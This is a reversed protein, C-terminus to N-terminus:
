VVAISYRLETLSHLDFLKTVEKGCNVVINAYIWTDGWTLM